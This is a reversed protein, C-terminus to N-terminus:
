RLESAGGLLWVLAPFMTADLTGSLMVVGLVARAPIFVPNLYAQQTKTVIGQDLPAM